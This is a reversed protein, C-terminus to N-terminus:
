PVAFFIHLYAITANFATESKIWLGITNGSKNFFGDHRLRPVQGDNWSFKLSKGSGSYVNLPDTELSCENYGFWNDKIPKLKNEDISNYSDFSLIATADSPFGTGGQEDASSHVSLTDKGNGYAEIKYAQGDETIAPGGSSNQGPKSKEFDLVTVAKKRQTVATSGTTTEAGATVFTGVLTSLVLAITLTISLFREKM